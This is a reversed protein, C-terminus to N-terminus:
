SHCICAERVLFSGDIGLLQLQSTYTRGVGHTAHTWMVVVSCPPCELHRIALPEGTVPHVKGEAWAEIDADTAGGGTNERFLHSGPVTKLNGDNLAFGNLYFFVRIFGCKEQTTHNGYGGHSHYGMAGINADKTM